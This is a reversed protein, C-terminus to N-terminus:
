RRLDDKSRPKLYWVSCREGDETCSMTDAHEASRKRDYLNAFSRATNRFAPHTTVDTVREGGLDITRGDRLSELYDAGARLMGIETQTLVRHMARRYSCFM